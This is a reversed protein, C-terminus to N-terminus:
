EAAEIKEMIDKIVGVWMESSQAGPVAHQQAM